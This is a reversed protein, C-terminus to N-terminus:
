KKKGNKGSSKGGGSFVQSFSGKGVRSLAYLNLVHGERGRFGMLDIPGM